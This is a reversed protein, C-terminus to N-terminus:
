TKSQLVDITTSMAEAGSCFKPAGSLKKQSFFENMKYRRASSEEGNNVICPPKKVNCAQLSGGVNFCLM